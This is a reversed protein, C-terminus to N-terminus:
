YEPPAGKRQLWPDSTRVHPVLLPVYIVHVVRYWTHIYPSIANMSTLTLHTMYLVQYLVWKQNSCDDCLLEARGGRSQKREYKGCGKATLHIIFSTVFLGFTVLLPLEPSVLECKSKCAQTSPHSCPAVLTDFPVLARRPSPVLHSSPLLTGLPAQKSNWLFISEYFVTNLWPFYLWEYNTTSEVSLLFPLGAYVFSNSFSYRLSQCLFRVLICASRKEKWSPTQLPRDVFSADGLVLSASGSNVM